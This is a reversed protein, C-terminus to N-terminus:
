GCCDSGGGCDCTGSELPKGKLAASIMAAACGVGADVYIAKVPCNLMCAGCEMCDLPHALIAAKQGRTFVAHPCVISCLDCNICLEEDYRLTTETYSNFM